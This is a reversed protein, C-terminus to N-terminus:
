SNILKDTLLIMKTGQNNFNEWARNTKYSAYIRVEGCNLQIVHDSKACKWPHWSHQPMTGFPGVLKTEKLMHWPNFHLCTVEAVIKVIHSSHELQVRGQVVLNKTYELLCISCLTCQPILGDGRGWFCWGRKRALGGKFRCITWAWRLDAFQGLGGGGKLLGGRYIPRKCVERRGLVWIKGHVGLINLNKMKWGMKDKFLLWIRVLFKGTQIRLLTNKNM